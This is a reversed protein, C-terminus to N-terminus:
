ELKGALACATLAAVTTGIAVRILITVSLESWTALAVPAVTIVLIPLGMDKAVVNGGVNAVTGFLSLRIMPKVNPM